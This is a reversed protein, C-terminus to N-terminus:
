RVDVERMFWRNFTSRSSFHKSTISGPTTHISSEFTQTFVHDRRITRPRRTGAGLNVGHAVGHLLRCRPLVGQSPASSACLTVAEDVDRSAESTRLSSVPTCKRPKFKSALRRKRRSNPLSSPRREVCRPPANGCRGTRDIHIINCRELYCRLERARKTTSSTM